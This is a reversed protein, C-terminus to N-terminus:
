LPHARLFDLVLKAVPDDDVVARFLISNHNRNPIIHFRATNGATVLATAFEAGMQQRLPLDKEANLVLFPPAGPEVHSLPSAELRSECDAAFISAYPDVRVPLPISRALWQPVRYAARLPFLLDLRFAEPSAGGVVMPKEGAPIRYPASISVVGRVDAPQMAVAELYQEDLVLLSVMHGGASHGILFLQQPDGGYEAIHSRTWAIARAVDRIHEPHRVQPSLRYNPLVAAFGHSALFQGFDAYLGFFRNNGMTWAGGHVFIVVPVGTRNAPLYLDASHRPDRHPEHVYPVGSITRFPTGDPQRPLRWFRVQAARILLRRFAFGAAIMLVAVVALAM